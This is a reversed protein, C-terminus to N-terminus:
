SDFTSKVTRCLLRLSVWLAALAQPQQLSAEIATQCISQMSQLLAAAKSAGPIGALSAICSQCLLSISQSLQLAVQPSGPTHQAVDILMDVAQLHASANWWENSRQQESAAPAHNAPVQDDHPFRVVSMTHGAVQLPSTGFAATGEQQGQPQSEHNTAALSTHAPLRNDQGATTAHVAVPPRGIMSGAKSFRLADLPGMKSPASPEAELGDADQHPRPPQQHM